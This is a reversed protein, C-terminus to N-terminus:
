KRALNTHLKNERMFLSVLGGAVALALCAVWVGRLAEIYAKLALAKDAEKLHKLADISNRLKEVIGSADDYDGFADWLRSTLINQFVLSAITVGIATGTSRAAYSASTVVAQQEHPAASILALLTITLMSGYGLGAMFLAVFPAWEPVDLRFLGFILGTALVFIGEVAVNLWWYKGTLRMIYGTGLSGVALGVAHPILRVGAQTASSGRVQFYIPGYFLLAFAAMSILWNTGCGAAITRQLLLRVPIIPEKAIQDEVYIFLGLLVGAVPLSVYVLPHKWPVINGGSNLGLLLLVLSAVLLVAGLFDVRKIRSKDSEKVPIKMNIAIILTSVLTLPVQILFAWRWTLADNMFGGFVGGIASGVGFSINGIGQWIGRRRLPVLDSACFTVITNVCGGGIGGVVRGLIIVWEDKALGCILNGAAFLLSAAILCPRRGYIDSVKGSIPQFGANAILYASALWSLLTFSNFSNSIPATLTAVITSDMAALFVGFYGAGLTIALKATSWEPEEPPPQAAEDAEHATNSVGNPKNAADQAGDTHEENRLLPTEETSDPGNPPM